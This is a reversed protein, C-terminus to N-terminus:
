VSWLDVTAFVLHQVFNIESISQACCEYKVNSSGDGRCRDCKLRDCDIRFGSIRIGMVAGSWPPGYGNSNNRFYQSKEKFCKINVLSINSTESSNKPIHVFISHNARVSLPLIDIWLLSRSFHDLVIMAFSFCCLTRYVITFFLIYFVVYSESSNSYLLKQFSCNKFIEALSEFSNPVWRHVGIVTVNRFFFIRM